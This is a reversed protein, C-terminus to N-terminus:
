GLDAETEEGVLPESTRGFRKEELLLMEDANRAATDPHIDSCSLAAAAYRCWRERRLEKDSNVARVLAAHKAADAYWRADRRERAESKEQRGPYTIWAALQDLARCYAELDYYGTDDKLKQFTRELQIEMLKKIQEFQEPTVLDNKM